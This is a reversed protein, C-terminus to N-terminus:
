RQRYRALSKPVKACTLNVPVRELISREAVSLVKPITSKAARRGVDL